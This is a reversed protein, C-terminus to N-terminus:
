APALAKLSSPVILKHVPAVFFMYVKGLQNHVHVVTTAHVTINDGVVDLLFSVRVDLHKDRDELVIETDSKSHLTFIGIREGVRINAAKEKSVADQLRGLHKLGLRSVIRNRTAMLFSVWAPTQKAIELYVDLATQNNNPIERSFSDAFYAGKAYAFLKSHKPISM